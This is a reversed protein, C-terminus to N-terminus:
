KWSNLRVELMDSIDKQRCKPATRELNEYAIIIKVLADIIQESAIVLKPENRIKHCTNTVFDSAVESKIEGWVFIECVPVFFHCIISSIAHLQIENQSSYDSTSISSVFLTLRMSSLLRYCRGVIDKNELLVPKILHFMERVQNTCLNFSEPSDRKTFYSKRIFNLLSLITSGLTDGFKSCLVNALTIMKTSKINETESLDDTIFMFYWVCFESFSTFNNQTSKVVVLSSQICLFLIDFLAKYYAKVLDTERTQKQFLKSYTAVGKWAFSCANELNRKFLISMISSSLLFSSPSIKSSFCFKKDGCRYTVPAEVLLVACIAHIRLFLIEQLLQPHTMPLRSNNSALVQEFVQTASWLIRHIKLAFSCCTDIGDKSKGNLSLYLGIWPCVVSSTFRFAGACYNEEDIKFNLKLNRVSSEPLKACFSSGTAGGSTELLSLIAYYIQSQLTVSNLSIIVKIFSYIEEKKNETGVMDIASHIAKEDLRFLRRGTEKDKRCPPIPMSTGPATTCVKSFWTTTQRMLNAVAENMAIGLFCMEKDHKGIISAQLSAHYCLKVASSIKSNEGISIFEDSQGSEEYWSSLHCIRYLCFVAVTVNAAAKNKLDDEDSKCEASRIHKEKQKNLDAGNRLCRRAVSILEGSMEELLLVPEGLEVASLLSKCKIANKLLYNAQCLMSGQKSSPGSRSM